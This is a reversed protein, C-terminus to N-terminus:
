REGPGAPKEGMPKGEADQAETPGIKLTKLSGEIKSRDGAVVIVMTDPALYKEAVQQIRAASVEEIMKPLETYYTPALDYIYLLAMTGAAQQTTEFIATLGRVLSERAMNVEEATPQTRRMKDLEKFVESVAAATADTRVMSGVMFPGQARRFQFTTFAGYTFGHV